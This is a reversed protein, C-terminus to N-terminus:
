FDQPKLMNSNQTYKTCQFLFHKKIMRQTNAHPASQVCLFLMVLLMVSLSFSLGCFSAFVFVVVFFDEGLDSFKILGFLLLLWDQIRVKFVMDDLLFISM